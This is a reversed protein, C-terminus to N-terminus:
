ALAGQDSDMPDGMGVKFTTEAQAAHATLTALVASALLTKKFM